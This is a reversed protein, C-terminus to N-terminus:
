RPCVASGDELWRLASCNQRMFDKSLCWHLQHSAVELMPNATGGLSISVRIREHASMMCTCRGDDVQSMTVERPPNPKYVILKEAM